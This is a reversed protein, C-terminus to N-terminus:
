NKISFSDSWIIYNRFVEGVENTSYFIRNERLCKLIFISLKDSHKTLCMRYNWRFDPETTYVIDRSEEKIPTTKRHMFIFPGTDLSVIEGQLLDEEFKIFFVAMVDKPRYKVDLHPYIAIEWAGGTIMKLEPNDFSFYVDSAKGGHKVSSGTYETVVTLGTDGYHYVDVTGPKQDKIHNLGMESFYPCYKNVTNGLMIIKVNDRHRIITSLTNAFLIWENPLYGNRSMFEDFIITTVRPFSTSKYHEMSNLDFAFGCNDDSKETEGNESRRELYFKSSGYYIQNWEGNFISSIRGNETHGSFLTGLNKKRIDEGWRRVYAFQEGTKKYREIAYDLASYTKGNSREGFVVYYFAEPYDKILKRIDYFEFKKM